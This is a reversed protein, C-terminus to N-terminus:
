VHLLQQRKLMHITADIELVLHDIHVRETGKPVVWNCSRDIRRKMRKQRKRVNIMQVGIPPNRESGRGVALGLHLLEIMLKTMLKYPQGPLPGSKFKPHHEFSNNFLSRIAVTDHKTPM